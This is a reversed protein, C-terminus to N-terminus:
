VIEEVLAGLRHALFIPLSEEPNEAYRDYIESVPELSRITRLGWDLRGSADQFEATKKSLRNLVTQRTTQLASRASDWDDFQVVITFPITYRFLAKEEQILEVGPDDSSQIIVYPAKDNPGDLISWDNIVVDGSSFTGTDRLLERQMDAQLTAESM